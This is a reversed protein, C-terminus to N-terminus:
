GRKLQIRILKLHEPNYGNMPQLMNMFLIEIHEKYVIEQLNEALRRSSIEGENLKKLVMKVNLGLFLLRFNL